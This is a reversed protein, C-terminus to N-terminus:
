LKGKREARRRWTDVQAREQPSWYSAGDALEQRPRGATLADLFANVESSRGEILCVAAHQGPLSTGEWHFRHVIWDIRLMREHPTHASPYTDIYEQCFPLLGPAILHQRQFSDRYAAWTGRWSCALCILEADAAGDHAIDAECQPCVAQGRRAREVQVMSRCREYIAFGVDALLEDDHLGRADEEYIRRIKHQPVRRAWAPSVANM